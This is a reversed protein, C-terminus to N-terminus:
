RNINTKITKENRIDYLFVEQNVKFFVFGTNHDFYFYAPLWRYFFTQYNVVKKKGDWNVVIGGYPYSHIVIEKNQFISKVPLKSLQDINVKKYITKCNNSFSISNGLLLPLLFICSYMGWWCLIFYKMPKSFKILLSTKIILYKTLVIDLSYLIFGAFCIIVINFLTSVDYNILNAQSFYYGGLCFVCVGIFHLVINIVISCYISEIPSLFRLIFGKLVGLPIFLWISTITILVVFNM